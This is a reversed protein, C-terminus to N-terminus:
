ANVLALFVLILIVAVAVRTVTRMFGEFAREQASIDMSGAVHGQGPATDAPHSTREEPHSLSQAM